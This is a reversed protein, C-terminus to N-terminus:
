KIISYLYNIVSSSIPKKGYLAKALNIIADLENKEKQVDVKKDQRTDDIEDREKKYKLENADKQMNYELESDMKYTDFIRDFNDKDKKYYYERDSEFDEIEDRYRTYAKEDLKSLHELTNYLNEYEDNYRSYADRFLEPVKESILSNYHNKAGSAASIASSSVMGGTRLASEYLAREYADDGLKQYLSYYAKFVPDNEYDYSFTKKDQLKKLTKKMENEYPSEYKSYNRIEYNKRETNYESGDNGGTYDGYTKRISNAKENADIMAKTDGSEKANKYIKKQEVIKSLADPSLAKDYASIYLDKNEDILKKKEYYTSLKLEGKM